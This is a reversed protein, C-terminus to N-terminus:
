WLGGARVVADPVAAALQDPSVSRDPLIFGLVPYTTAGMQASPPWWVRVLSWDNDASVDIVPQDATVRQRVWNAHTVRIERDGVLRSVVSLHGHALRASRDFVLVAGVAPTQSREYFGDAKWWWDAANGALQVGSLARAFPVCELAVPADFAPATGQDAPGASPGSGACGALCMTAVAVVVLPNRGTVRM